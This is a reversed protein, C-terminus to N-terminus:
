FHVVVGVSVRTCNTHGGSTNLGVYDLQPRLALHPLMGIDVGGGVSYAFQNFDPGGGTTIRSGGLLFQIFPNFRSPNRATIRPGFMYTYTNLSTGGPSAHYGGFDGAVGFFRNFNYAVSGSVGNQNVGGNNGLRFYSYSLSADVSQARSASPMGLFVLGLGILMLRKM